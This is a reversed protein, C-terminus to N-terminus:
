PTKFQSFFTIIKNHTASRTSINEMLVEHRAKPVIELTGNAWREMRNHIAETSVIEENDGLFTLCPYDPSSMDALATCEKLAEYVWQVSPGGLELKPEHALHDRLYQYMMPDNTLLNGDFAQELVYSGASTSPALWGGYGLLPAVHGLIRAIPRLADPVRIGWMPATFVAAKVDLGNHLARLAIAGGMSHGLVYWPKPLKLDTAHQIVADVDTQFAKFRDIHGRLRDHYLRDALGQGRWDVALTAYGERAFFDATIGYKEVYETRGPFLLLTGKETDSTSRWHGIRLRLGDSTRVWHAQGTAPGKAVENYLPAADFTM